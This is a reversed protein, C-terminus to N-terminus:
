FGGESLFKKLKTRSRSLRKFVSKETKHIMEAIEKASYGEYYHLYIVERDIASLQDLVFELDDFQPQETSLMYESMDTRRHRANLKIVNKSKNIAVRILWAKMHEESQFEARFLYELLALFVEQVLDEADDRNRVYQFAVRFVMNSYRDVVTQIFADDVYSENM